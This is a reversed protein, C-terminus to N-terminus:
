LAHGAEGAERCWPTLHVRTLLTSTLAANLMGPQDAPVCFKFYIGCWALAGEQVAKEFNEIYVQAKAELMALRRRIKEERDVAGYALM